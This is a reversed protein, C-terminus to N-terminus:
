EPCRAFTEGDRNSAPSEPFHMRCLRARDKSGISRRWLARGRLVCGHKAGSNEEM